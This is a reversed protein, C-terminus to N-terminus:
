DPGRWVKYRTLKVLTTTTRIVGRLGAISRRCPLSVPSDMMASIGITTYKAKILQYNQKYRRILM